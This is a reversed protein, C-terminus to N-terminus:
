LGHFFHHHEECRFSGQRPTGIKPYGEAIVFAGTIPQNDDSAIVHGKVTRTQAWTVGGWLLAAAVCIILKLHKSHM